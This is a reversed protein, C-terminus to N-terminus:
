TQHTVVQVNMSYLDVHYLSNVIHALAHNHQLVDFFKIQKHACKIIPYINRWM